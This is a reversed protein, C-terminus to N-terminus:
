NNGTFFCRAVEREAGQRGENSFRRRRKFCRGFNFFSELIFRLSCEGACSFMRVVLTGNGRSRVAADAIM